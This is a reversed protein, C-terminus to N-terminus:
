FPFIMPILLSAILWIGLNLATGVRTYDFFRYGGPGMVLANSQHSIPTMFCSSAAIAVAMFFPKPSVGLDIATNFAIPAILVAAAAHSMVETLAFTILFVAGLVVWPGFEGVGGIILDALFRAAGSNEMAHGLPLTGAILMIISWDIADYAETITLCRFLIMALAGLSASLMIPLLGTAALVIVGLLILLAIPAKQPVYTTLSVGGLLLFGHERGLHLVKEEPGQLLLVDGFKLIVHDVKKVVPAGSRWLALVTLGHTDAFRVDRLTKGVMESTPALSAEVVVVNDKGNNGIVPNDREPVVTLGKKKRVKLIGEPNGELFLVDGARLKRNRRPFPYKHRDRLIARVKLNFDEELGSQTITKGDLPSKPEIEVETIYEKVQYAETLTGSKRSPLLHRGVLAMYATGVLVIVLGVPTFDFMSFSQGSYEHLLENMLINPPTGILTCVGGMLSGFALPMLLKSPAIRAKQAMGVVLPLLVATSGINNIFASILAVTLMIAAILRPESNGAVHLIKEGLKGTAGTNAIASSIIFMAAVTIVAPNSFGSFAEHPTVLGTLGLAMLVMLSVLDMRILETAFLIVAIVLITLVLTIEM